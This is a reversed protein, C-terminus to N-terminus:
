QQRARLSADSGWDRALDPLPQVDGALLRGYFRAAYDSIGIMKNIDEVPFRGTFVILDDAMDPFGGERLTKSAHLHWASVVAPDGFKHRTGSAWDICVSFEEVPDGIPEDGDCLIYYGDVMKVNLNM